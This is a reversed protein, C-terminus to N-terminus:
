RTKEFLARKVLDKTRAKLTTPLQILPAFPTRIWRFKWQLASSNGLRCLAQQLDGRETETLSDSKLCDAQRLALQCRAQLIPAPTWDRRAFAPLLSNEMVWRIGEIETQKRRSRAPTDWVRYNALVENVYENGWGADALRIALDWDEAFNLGSRYYDVQQLAARRFLCINAAVRYGSISARLSEEGSQFGTHRALQRLNRKRGTADIEQVAAHAYGAQPFHRLSRLLAAVFEPHLEDDSDLRGIFETAPQKMVWTPNGKIGLNERQRTYHIAPFERCLRDMVGPTEDTSADDSVWVECPHTQALASRVAKELFDAQNYTPICIAVSSLTNASLSTSM